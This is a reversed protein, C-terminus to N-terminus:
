GIGVFVARYRQELVQEPARQRWHVAPPVLRKLFLSSLKSEVVMESYRLSFLPCWRARAVRIGPREIVVDLVKALALHLDEHRIRDPARQVAAKVNARRGVNPNRAEFQHEKWAQPRRAVVALPRIQPEPVL